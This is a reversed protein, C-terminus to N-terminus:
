QEHEFQEFYNEDLHNLDLHEIQLTTHHLGYKTKLLQELQNIIQYADQSSTSDLVVHASLSYQDSTVSWLHFEHM